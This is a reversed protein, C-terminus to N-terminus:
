TPWVTTAIFFAAAVLLGSLGLLLDNLPQPRRYYTRPRYTTQRQMYRPSPLRRVEGRPKHHLPALLATMEGTRKNTRYLTM